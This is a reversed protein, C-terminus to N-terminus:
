ISLWMVYVLVIFTLVSGTTLMYVLVTFAGFFARAYLLAARLMVCVCHVCCLVYGLVVRRECCLV